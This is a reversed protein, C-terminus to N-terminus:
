PCPGAAAVGMRGSVWGSVGGICAGCRRGVGVLILWGIWGVQCALGGRAASSPSLSIVAPPARNPCNMSGRMPLRQQKPTPTHPKHPRAIPNLFFPPLPFSRIQPSLFSVEKDPRRRGDKWGGNSVWSKGGCFVVVMAVGGSSFQVGVDEEEERRKNEKVVM